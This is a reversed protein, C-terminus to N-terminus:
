WKGRLIPTDMGLKEWVMQAGTARGVPDQKGGERDLKYVFM